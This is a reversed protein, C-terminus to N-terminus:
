SPAATNTFSGGRVDLVASVSANTIYLAGGTVNVIALSGCDSRGVAFNSSVTSSGGVITLTGRSGTNQGVMVNRARWNGNSVTLQGVGTRGITTDNNTVTLLGDTLWV